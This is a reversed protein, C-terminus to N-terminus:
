ILEWRDLLDRVKVISHNTAIMTVEHWGVVHVHDMLRVRTAFEDSNPCQGAKCFWEVRIRIHGKRQVWVQGRAFLPM